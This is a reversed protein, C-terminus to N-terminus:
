SQLAERLERAEFRIAAGGVPRAHIALSSRCDEGRRRRRILLRTWAGGHSAELCAAEGAAAYLLPAPARGPKEVLVLLLSGAGGATSALLAALRWLSVGEGLLRAVYRALVAAPLRRQPQPPNATLMGGRGLPQLVCHFMTAWSGSPLTYGGLSCVAGGLGAAAMHLWPSVLPELAAPPELLLRGWGRPTELFAYVSWGGGATSALLRRLWAASDLAWPEGPRAAAAALVPGPQRAM